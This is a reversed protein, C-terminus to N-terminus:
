NVMFATQAIPVWKGFGNKTFYGETALCSASGQTWLSSALPGIVAHGDDVIFYAAYVYSPNYCQVFVYNGTSNPRVEDDSVIATTTGGYVTDPVTITGSYPKAASAIMSGTFFTLISATVALFKRM